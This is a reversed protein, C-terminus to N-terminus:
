NGANWPVRMGMSTFIVFYVPILVAFVVLGEENWWKDIARGNKGIMATFYSAAMVLAITM